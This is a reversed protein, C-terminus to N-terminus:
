VGLMHDIIKKLLVLDSYFLNTNIAQAVGLEQPENKNSLDNDSTDNVPYFIVPFETSKILIDRYTQEFPTLSKSVSLNPDKAQEAQKLLVSKLRGAIRDHTNSLVEEITRGFEEIQLIAHRVVYVKNGELKEQQMDFLNYADSLRFYESPLNDANNWKVIVGNLAVNFM